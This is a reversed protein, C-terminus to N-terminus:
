ANKVKERLDLLETYLDILMQTPCTTASQSGFELMYKVIQLDLYKENVVVKDM